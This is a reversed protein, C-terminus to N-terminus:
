HHEQKGPKEPQPKPPPALKARQEQWVRQKNEEQQWQQPSKEQVPPAAKILPHPPPQVQV